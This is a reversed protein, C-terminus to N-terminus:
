IKVNQPFEWPSCQPSVLHQVHEMLLPPRPQRSWGRGQQDDCHQPRAPVEDPM